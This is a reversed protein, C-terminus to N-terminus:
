RERERVRERKRVRECRERLGRTDASAHWMAFTSTYYEGDYAPARAGM